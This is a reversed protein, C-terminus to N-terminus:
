DLELLLFRKDIASLDEFQVPSISVSASPAAIMIDEPEEAVVPAPVPPVAVLVEDARRSAIALGDERAERPLDNTPGDELDLLSFRVSAGSSITKLEAVLAALKARCESVMVDGCLIRYGQARQDLTALVGLLRTATREAVEEQPNDKRNRCAQRRGELDRAVQDIEDAFGRAIGRALEDSSVIPIMPNMWGVGWVRAVETVLRSAEDRSAAPVYHCGAFSAAGCRVVLTDRLWRTVDGARYAEADCATQYDAGIRAALAVAEPSEDHTITLASFGDLLEATLVIDGLSQGIGNAGARNRAVVHRVRYERTRPEGEVKPAYKAATAVRAILANTGTEMSDGLHARDSKPSPAWAEPLEAAVLIAVIQARTMVGDGRWATLAGHGEAADGAVYTISRAMGPEPAQAPIKPAPRRGPNRSERAIIELEATM